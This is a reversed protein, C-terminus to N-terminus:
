PATVGADVRGNIFEPSSGYPRVGGHHALLVHLKAQVRGGVGSFGTIEIEGGGFARGRYEGIMVDGGLTLGLGAQAETLQYRGTGRFPISVWLHDENATASITLMQEGAVEQLYAAASGSWPQWDM